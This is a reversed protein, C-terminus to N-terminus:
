ARTKERINLRSLTAAWIAHSYPLVSASCRRGCLVHIKEVTRNCFKSDDGTQKRGNSKGSPRKTHQERSGANETVAAKPRDISNESLRKYKKPFHLLNLNFSGVEADYLLNEAM